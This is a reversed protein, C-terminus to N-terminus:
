FHEYRHLLASANTFYQLICYNIIKYIYCVFCRSCRHPVLLHNVPVIALALPFPNLFSCCNLSISSPPFFYLTPPLNACSAFFHFFFYSSHSCLLLKSAYHALMQIFMYLCLARANNSRVHWETALKRQSTKSDMCMRLIFHACPGRIMWM